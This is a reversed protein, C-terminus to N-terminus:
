GGIGFPVILRQGTFTRAIAHDLELKEVWMGNPLRGGISVQRGDSLTVVKDHAIRVDLVPIPTTHVTKIKPVKIHPIPMRSGPKDLVNKEAVKGQGNAELKPQPVTDISVLLRKLPVDEKIRMETLRWRQISASDYDALTGSIRVIGPEGASATLLYDLEDEKLLQQVSGVLSDTSRVKFIASKSVKRVARLLEERDKEARVFGIMKMRRTSSEILVHPAYPKALQELKTEITAADVREVSDNWGAALIGLVVLLNVGAIAFIAISTASLWKRQSPTDPEHSTIEQPAQSTTDVDDLDSSDSALDEEMAERLQFDSFDLQPWPKDAPGVALHTTGITFYQFPRIIAADIPKGDVLVAHKGLSRCEISEDSINVAVHEAAILRDDLVVSCQESSGIITEGQPLVVEAGVHPGSFVKLLYRM